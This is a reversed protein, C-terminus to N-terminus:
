AVLTRLYFSKILQKCRPASATSKKSVDKDGEAADTSKRKFFSTIKNPDGAMAIDVGRQHLVRPQYVKQWL